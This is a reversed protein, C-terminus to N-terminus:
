QDELDIEAPPAQVESAVESLPLSLELVNAMKFSAQSFLQALPSGDKVLLVALLEWDFNPSSMDKTIQESFQSLVESQLSKIKEYISSM